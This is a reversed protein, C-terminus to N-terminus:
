DKSFFLLAKGRHVKILAKDGLIENSLGLSSSFEILDESLKYFFGELSVVIGEQTFPIISISYAELKDVEMDRDLIQIINNADIITGHGGNNKIKNLLFINAMTHDLRTGTNGILVINKINNELMYDIALETDSADKISPYKVLDIKKDKIYREGEPSISDLDGIVKDPVLKLRRLYELGGDACIVYDAKNFNEYIIEKNDISGNSIILGNM